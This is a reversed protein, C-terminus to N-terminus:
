EHLFRHRRKNFDPAVFGQHVQCMEVVLEVMFIARAAERMAEAAAKAGAEFFTVLV